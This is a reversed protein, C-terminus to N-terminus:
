LIVWIVKLQLWSSRHQTIQYNEYQKYVFLSTYRMIHVSGLCMRMHLLPTRTKTNIQLYM